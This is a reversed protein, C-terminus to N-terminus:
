FRYNVGLRFLNSWIGNQAGTITYLRDNLSIYLYEAKASWHSNLGVEVGGGATWGGHTKTESLGPIEGKVGGYAFGGTAYILFSNWAVGARARITGFWPNSFKWPAFTDDSGSVQLDTEGGFVFQGSQFNYGLQLGGAVGSPRTPNNDTGGWQYGINVGAYGGTWNYGPAVPAAQPPYYSQRPLDAAVAASSGLALVLATITRKM